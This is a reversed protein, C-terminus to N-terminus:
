TVVASVVLNSVEMETITHKLRTREDAEKQLIKVFGESRPSVPVLLESHSRVVGKTVFSVFCVRLSVGLFCANM